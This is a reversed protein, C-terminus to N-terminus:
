SSNKRSFVGVGSWFDLISMRSLLVRFVLETLTGREKVLYGDNILIM